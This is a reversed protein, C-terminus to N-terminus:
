EVKGEAYEQLTQSSKQTLYMEIADEVNESSESGAGAYYGRSFAQELEEKKIERANKIGMIYGTVILTYGGLVLFKKLRMKSKYNM